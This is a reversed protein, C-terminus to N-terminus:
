ARSRRSSTACSCRSPRTAPPRACSKRMSSPARSISSTRAATAGRRHARGGPRRRRDRAVRSDAPVMYSGEIIVYPATFDIETARKPDIALFAVDWRVAAGRVGQGRRRVHRPRRRRRPSAGTRARHRGVGRAGRRHRSGEARAGSQRLQDRRAAHRVARARRRRCDSTTMDRNRRTIVRPSALAHGRWPHFLAAHARDAVHARAREAPACPGRARSLDERDPIRQRREAQAGRCRKRPRSARPQNASSTMDWGSDIVYASGGDALAGRVKSWFEDFRDDPVHSLWFSMFVFDYRDAPQWAFLDEVAYAVNAAAVRGRNIALVEPSADLALLHGARPARSARSFAPAARSSSRAVRALMTSTPSWRREGGRRRRRGM